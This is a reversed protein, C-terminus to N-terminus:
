KIMMMIMIMPLVDRKSGYGEKCSEALRCETKMEESKAVTVKKCILITLRLDLGWGGWIDGLSLISWNCGWARSERKM